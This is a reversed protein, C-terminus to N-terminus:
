ITLKISSYKHSVPSSAVYGYANLYGFTCFLVCFSGAVVTWARFGGEPFSLALAAKEEQPNPASTESMASEHDSM